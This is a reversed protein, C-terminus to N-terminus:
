SVRKEIWNPFFYTLCPVDAPLKEVLRVLGYEGMWSALVDATLKVLLHIVIGDRLRGCVQSVGISVERKLYVYRSGSRCRTRVTLLNGIGPNARPWDVTKGLLEALPKVHM